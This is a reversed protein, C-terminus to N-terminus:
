KFDEYRDVTGDEDDDYGIVGIGDGDENSYLHTDVKGNNDEDLAMEDWSGDENDDYIIIRAKKKDELIIVTMEVAGNKDDDISIKFDKSGEKTYDVIEVSVVNVGLEESLKELKDKNKIAKDKNKSKRKKKSIKKKKVKVDGKQKLFARVDEASIAYNASAYDPSSSSNVGVIKGDNNLLPGGSNGPNLPTQSQIMLAVKHTTDKYSWRDDYNLQSIYGKTYTWDAGGKPHGIAHVDQGIEPKKNSISLPHANEPTSQLRILALDAEGNIKIVNGFLFDDKTIKNRNKPMFVIGTKKSNKVVHWNTLILGDKSILSGSGSGTKTFVKVVAPAAKKFVHVEKIGRTKIPTNSFSVLKNIIGSVPVENKPLKNTVGTHLANFDVNSASAGKKTVIQMGRIFTKKDIHKIISRKVITGDFMKSDWKNKKINYSLSNIDLPTISGVVILTEVGVKDDLKYWHDDAPLKFSTNNLKYGSNLVTLENSSNLLFSYIHQASNVKIELQFSDGSFLASNGEVIRLNGNHLGNVTLDIQEQATHSVSTITIVVVFFLRKLLILM